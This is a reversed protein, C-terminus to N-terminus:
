VSKWQMEIMVGELGLAWEEELSFSLQNLIKGIAARSSQCFRQVPWVECDLIIVGWLAGLYQNLGFLYEREWYWHGWYQREPGKWDKRKAMIGVHVFRGRALRVANRECCCVLMDWSIVLFGGWILKWARWRRLGGWWKRPPSGEQKVSGVLLAWFKRPKGLHM